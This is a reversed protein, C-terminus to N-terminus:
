RFQNNKLALSLAMDLTLVSDPGQAPLDPSRETESVQKSHVAPYGAALPSPEPFVAETRYSSCGALGILTISLISASLFRKM